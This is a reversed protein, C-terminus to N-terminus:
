EDTDFEEEDDSSEWDTTNFSEEDEDEDDDEDYEDGDIAGGDYKVVFDRLDAAMDCIHNNCYADKAYFWPTDGNEDTLSIACIFTGRSSMEEVLEDFTCLSLPTLNDKKKQTM